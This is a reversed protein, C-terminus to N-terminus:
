FCSNISFLIAYTESVLPEDLPIKIAQVRGVVRPRCMGSSAVNKCRWSENSAALLYQAEPVPGPGNGKLLHTIRKYGLHGVGRYWLPTLFTVIAM